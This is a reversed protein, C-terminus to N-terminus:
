IAEEILSIHLSVFAYLPTDVCGVPKCSIVVYECKHVSTLCVCACVCTCVHVYTCICLVCRKLGALVAFTSMDTLQNEDM